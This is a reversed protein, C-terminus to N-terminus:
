SKNVNFKRTPEKDAITKNTTKGAEIEVKYSKTDLLYGYPAIRESITYIGAKLNEVLIKGNRVTVDENYAQGNTINFVAGDILEGNSNLKELELKGKAEIEFNLRLTIPDNYNLSYLQDQVDSAFSFYITTDDDQTGEKILGWSEFMSDTIKYSELNCDESVTITMTNEGKNHQLRIGEITKDMTNYSSFVGNTDRLMQAEGTKLTVTTGDFSPRKKMQAIKNNVDNKFSIYENQVGADVFTASSQGLVEWIAQQTFAYQKLADNALVGNSGYSGRSQYWGCFAVKAAQLLREDSPKGYTGQYNTGHRFIFM